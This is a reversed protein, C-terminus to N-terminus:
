IPGAVYTYQDAVVVVSTGGPGTVRVDVSGAAAAPAVATIQTGSNLTFSAAPVGGFSVATSGTFNSGTITVSTGGTTPGSAPSLGTVQPALIYGIPQANSTGGATTVTINVTSTGAPATFTIQTDSDVTFPM